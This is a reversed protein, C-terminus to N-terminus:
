IMRFGNKIYQTTYFQALKNEIQENTDEELDIEYDGFKVLNNDSFLDVELWGGSKRFKVGKAEFNRIIQETYPTQNFKFYLLYKIIRLIVKIEGMQSPKTFILEKMRKFNHVGNCVCIYSFIAM